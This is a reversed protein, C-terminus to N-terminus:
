MTIVSKNEALNMELVSVSQSTEGNGSSLGDFIETLTMISHYCTM